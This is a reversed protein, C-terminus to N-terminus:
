VYDGIERCCRTAANFIEGRDMSGEGVKIAVRIARLHLRDIRLTLSPLALFALHVLM